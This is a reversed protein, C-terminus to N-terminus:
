LTAREVLTGAETHKGDQTGTKDNEFLSQLVTETRLALFSFADGSEIEFGDVVWVGSQAAVKGRKFNVRYSSDVTVSGDLSDLVSQLRAMLRQHETREYGSAAIIYDFPVSKEAVGTSIDTVDLLIRSTGESTRAHTIEKSTCIRSNHETRNGQKVLQSYQLLYLRSLVSSHVTPAVARFDGQAGLCRRLEYPLRNPTQVASSLFPNTDTQRLATDDLYLVVKSDSAVSCLHEFIEVAEDDGGLVAINLSRAENSQIDPLAEHFRASHFLRRHSRFSSLPPSLKAQSGVAIIVRRAEVSRLTGGKIDKANIRWTNIEGNAVSLPELGSVEHGYRIWGLAEIKSACWQLYHCFVSKPPNVLSLNTYDVLSGTAWLYNIFTFDSLPNRQTVLDQLLSTRMRSGNLPSAGGRWSFCPKRELILVNLPRPLEHLAIALSLAAPGFGLIVVDFLVEVM